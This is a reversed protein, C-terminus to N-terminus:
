PTERNRSLKLYPKEHSAHNVRSVDLADAVSDLYDPAHKGYINEFVDESMGLYRAGKAKDIGEMVIWTAASHRLVHPTIHPLGAKDACRRFAKKVDKVPKGHYEIVHTTTSLRKYYELTERLGKSMPIFSKKKNGVDKGFDIRNREFDVRDWTLDCVAGKRQGASIALTIFLSLHPTQEATDLLKDVEKRTAWEQRAEPPAVPMKFKPAIIWKEREAWHLAARFTALDQRISANGVGEAGRNKAYEKITNQSIQHPLIKGMHRSINTCNRKIDDISSRGEFMKEEYYGSLILSVIPQEPPTVRQREVFQALFLEATERDKTGSSATRTRGEDTWKVEYNGSRNRKLKYNITSNRPRGM